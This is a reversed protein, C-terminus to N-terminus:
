CYNIGHLHSCSFTDLMEVSLFLNKWTYEIEGNRNKRDRISKIPCEYFYGNENLQVCLIYNGCNLSVPDVLTLTMLETSTDYSCETEHPLLFKDSNEIFLPVSLRNSSTVTSAFASVYASIGKLKTNPKRVLIQCAFRTNGTENDTCVHDKFLEMFKYKALTNGVAPTGHTSILNRFTKKRCWFPLECLGVRILNKSISSVESDTLIDSSGPGSLFEDIQMALFDIHPLLPDIMSRLTRNRTKVDEDGCNSEVWKMLYEFLNAESEINLSEMETIAKLMVLPSILFSTSNLIETTNVTIIEESKSKIEFNDMVHPVCYLFPVNEPNMNYKIYSVCTDRLDYINYKDAACYTNLAEMMSVISFTEEYIYKVMIQFTAPEIDPIKVEHYEHISGYFMTAFVDSNLSLILKHLKFKKQNPPKGVLFSVDSFNGSKLIRSLRVQNSAIRM